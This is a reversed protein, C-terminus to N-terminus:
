MGGMASLKNLMRGATEHPSGSGDVRVVRADLSPVLATMAEFQKNRKAVTTAISDEERANNSKARMGIRKRALAETVEVICLTIPTTSAGMADKFANWQEVNLPFGDIYVTTEANQLRELIISTTLEKSVADGRRLTEALTEDHAAKQRLIEGVSFATHTHTLTNLASTKGCGPRGIVCVIMSM